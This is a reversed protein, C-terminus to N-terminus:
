AWSRGQRRLGDPRVDGGDPVARSRRGRGRQDDLQAPLGHRRDPGPTAGPLLDGAIQEIIFQNYPLDRNLAGIVWDRYFYVQRSKDKEYGDSDAYRAADLWIRGWREGYHPSELLREVLRDIPSRPPRDALFADVQEISPPLGILDLSLRRILTVKDAEPSPELGEAELRALIFCDIPNRCWGANKVAALAPRVPPVFAWHGEISPGKRSGPRSSPSRPPALADQRQRPPPMREDPDDATIRQYLESEDLKGPVIASAERRRRRRPMVTTTWGCSGKASSPTPGTASSASTPWSRGSTAASRFSTRVLMVM